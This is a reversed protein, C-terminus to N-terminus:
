FKEKSKEVIRWIGKRLKKSKKGLNKRSIECTAIQPNGIQM